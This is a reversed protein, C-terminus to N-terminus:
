GLTAAGLQQGRRGFAQQPSAQDSSAQRICPYAGWGPVGPLGLLFRVLDGTCRVTNRVMLLCTAEATDLVDDDSESSAAGLARLLTTLM